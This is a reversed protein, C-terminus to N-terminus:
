GPGISIGDSCTSEPEVASAESARGDLVTQVAMSNPYVTAVHSALNGKGFIWSWYMIGNQDIMAGDGDGFMPATCNSQAEDDVAHNKRDYLWEKTVTFDVPDVRNQILCLSEQGSGVGSFLAPAAGMAPASCAPDPSVTM